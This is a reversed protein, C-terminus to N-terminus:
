GGQGAHPRVGQGSAYNWSHFNLFLLSFLGQQSRFASVPDPTSASVSFCLATPIAYHATPGVASDFHNLHSYSLTVLDLRKVWLIKRRCDLGLM